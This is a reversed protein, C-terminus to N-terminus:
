KLGNHAWKVFDIFKDDIVIDGWVPVHVMQEFKDAVTKAEAETDFLRHGGSDTNVVIWGSPNNFDRQM